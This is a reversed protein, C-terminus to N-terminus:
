FKPNPLIVGSKNWRKQSISSNNHYNVEMKKIGNKYWWYSYGNKKGNSYLTERKKSGDVYWWTWLDDFVGDKINGEMGKEGTKYMAYANGTYVKGTSDVYYKGDSEKRLDKHLDLTQSFSFFSMVCFLITIITIKM